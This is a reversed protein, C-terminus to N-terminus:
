ERARPKGAQSAEDDPEPLGPHRSTTQIELSSRSAPLGLGPVMLLHCHRSSTFTAKLKLQSSPM